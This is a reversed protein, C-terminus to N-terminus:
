LKTWRQPIRYEAFPDSKTFWRAPAHIMQGVRGRRESLWAGWWSFSSNAIIHHQCLSMLHLDQWADRGQNHGVFIASEGLFLLADRCWEIDDSFVFWCPREEHDQIRRAARQYYSLPLTGHFKAAAQLSVYDGRRVHVAVSPSARAIQALDNSQASLARRPTLEEAIEAAYSVFCMESQWFGVLLTDRQPKCLLESYLRPSDTRMKMDSLWPWRMARRSRRLENPTADRARIGYVDLEYNRHTVTGDAVELLSRDLALDAGSNLSIARGYAYQFLQNGLGGNLRSIVLPTRGKLLRAEDVSEMIGM